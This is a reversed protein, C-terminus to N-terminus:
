QAIWGREREVAAGEVELEGLGSQVDAVSMGARAALDEV